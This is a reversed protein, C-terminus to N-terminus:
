AKVKEFCTTAALVDDEKTMIWAHSGDTQCWPSGYNTRLVFRRVSKHDLVAGIEFICADGFDRLDTM